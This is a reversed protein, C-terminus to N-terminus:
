TWSPDTLRQANNNNFVFGQNGQLHFRVKELSAVLDHTDGIGKSFCDLQDLCFPGVQRQNIDLKGVAGIAHIHHFCQPGTANMTQERGAVARALLSVVRDPTQVLRVTM